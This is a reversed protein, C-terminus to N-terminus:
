SKASGTKAEVKLVGNMVAAHGPFTCFYKYTVGPKLEAVKLTTSASEGGGVLPTSAIIRKDGKPQYNEALGAKMGDAVLAQMDKEDALVWDHGMASKPLKGTHKLTVKVETCDKAVTMEKLNYQMADNGEITLDCTKALAPSALTFALAALALTKQM